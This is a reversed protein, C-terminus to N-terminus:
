KTKKIKNKNKSSTIMSSSYNALDANKNCFQLNNWILRRNSKKHIQIRLNGSECITKRIIESM